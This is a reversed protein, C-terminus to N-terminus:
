KKLYAQVDVVLYASASTHLTVSGDAGVPVVVSNVLTRGSGVTVDANVPRATGSPYATVGTAATPAIPTVTLSVARVGVAPVGGRGLVPVTVTRGAAVRGTPAGLGSRTDLLRTPPVPVLDAGVKVWGLVDVLLDTQATSHITVSGGTGLRTLVAGTMDAGADYRVHATTPRASGTPYATLWGGASPTTASLDLVVATAGTSPVLGRGALPLDVSGGAPVRVKAVGTGTRTDIVRTPTVSVLHGTTPYWGVVTVVLDTSRSTYLRVRGDAGVRAPVHERLTTGAPFSVSRSGPQATGSPYATLYGPSAAGTVTVNLLATGVGSPIGARGAVPVSVSTGGAVKGAAVGVGTRTDLLSVPTLPRYADVDVVPAAQDRLHIFGNPWRGGTRTVKRWRFDGGWNDESILIEDASVVKEVYAVHGTSSFSTNWWAVAGVAPDDNTQGPFSPGWNYANGSLTSPKTNPLGNRVLRYAVYNTCNHGTSQRWYSTSSVDRYGANGYGAGACPDYGTCLVVWEASRATGALGIGSVVLAVVTLLLALRRARGHAPTPTALPM